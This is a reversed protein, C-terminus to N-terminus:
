QWIKFVTIVVSAFNRSNISFGKYIYFMNTSFYQKHFMVSVKVYIKKFTM